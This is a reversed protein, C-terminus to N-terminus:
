RDEFTMYGISGILGGGGFGLLKRIPKTVSLSGRATAFTVSATYGGAGQTYQTAGAATDPITVSDHVMECCALALKEDYTSDSGRVYGPKWVSLETDLRLSAARLLPAIREDSAKDEPYVDHYASADAFPEFGSM